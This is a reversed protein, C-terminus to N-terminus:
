GIKATGALSNPKHKCSAACGRRGSSGGTERLWFAPVILDFDSESLTGRAGSVPRLHLRVCDLLMTRSVSDTEDVDLRTLTIRLCITHPISM